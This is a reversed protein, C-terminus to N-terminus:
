LLPNLHLHRSRLAGKRARQRRMHKSRRRHTRSLPPKPAPQRADVQPLRHVLAGRVPLAGVRRSGGQVRVAVRLQLDAGGGGPRAAGGGAGCPLAPRRPSAPRRTLTPTAWVVCCGAKLGLLEVGLSGGGMFLCTTSYVSEEGKCAPRAAREGSCGQTLVPQVAMNPACSHNVFRAVSGARAADIVLHRADAAASAAFPLAPLHAAEDRSTTPDVYVLM